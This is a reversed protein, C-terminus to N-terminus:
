LFCKETTSKMKLVCNVNDRLALGEIASVGFLLDYSMEQLSNTYM